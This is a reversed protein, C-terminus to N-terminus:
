TGQKLKQLLNKVFTEREKLSERYDHDDTHLIEERLSPIERDLLEILVQHEQDSLTITTM